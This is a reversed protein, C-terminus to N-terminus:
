LKAAVKRALTELPQVNEAPDNLLVLRIWYWTGFQRWFISDDEAYAEDGLGAVATITHGLDRDVGLAKKAGPGVYFEVQATPGTVPGTYTCSRTDNEPPSGVGPDLPTGALTEADELTVIVCPDANGANKGGAESAAAGCQKEVYAALKALAKGGSGSTLKEYLPLLAKIAKKVSKPLSLSSAGQLASHMQQVAGEDVSVNGAGGTGAPSVLDCLKSAKASKEREGMAGAPAAVILLLALALAAIRCSTRVLTPPM